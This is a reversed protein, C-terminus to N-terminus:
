YPKQFMKYLLVVPSQFSGDKREQAVFQWLWPQAIYRRCPMFCMHSHISYPGAITKLLATGVTSKSEKAFYLKSLWLISSIYYDNTRNETLVLRLSSAEEVSRSFELPDDPYIGDNGSWLIYGNIHDQFSYTGFKDNGHILTSFFRGGPKLVTDVIKGFLLYAHNTQGSLKLYELTGCAIVVDYTGMENPNIETHKKQFVTFGKKRAKDVQEKSISVGTVTAGLTDRMYEMFECEGFGIELVRTGPGIGCKQSIYAFKAIETTRKLACADQSQGRPDLFSPSACGFNARYTQEGWSMIRKVNEDSYDMTDIGLLGNYLGETYNSVMPNNRSLITFYDSYLYETAVYEDMHYGRFKAVELVIEVVVPLFLYAVQRTVICQVLCLVVVLNRILARHSFRRTLTCKYTILVQLIIVWLVVVVVVFPSLVRM